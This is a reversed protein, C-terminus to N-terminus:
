WSQSRFIPPMMMMSKMAHLLFFRSRTKAAQFASVYSRARLLM